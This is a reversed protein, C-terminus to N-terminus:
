KLRNEHCQACANRTQHCMACNSVGMRVDNGHLIRYAPPHIRCATQGLHCRDCEMKDHCQMCEAKGYKAETGHGYRGVWLYTHSKPKIQALDNHCLACQGSAKRDEHCTLCTKMPPYDDHRMWQTRQPETHCFKCDQKRGYHKEHSFKIKLLSAQMAKKEPTEHCSTCSMDMNLRVHCEGCGKHMTEMGAAGKHCQSCQKIRSDNGKKHHCTVCSIGAKEFGRHSLEVPGPVWGVRVSSLGTDKATVFSDVSTIIVTDTSISDHFFVNLQAHAPIASALALTYATVGSSLLTKLINKKM